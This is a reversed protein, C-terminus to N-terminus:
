RLVRSVGVRRRAAHEGAGLAAVLHTLQEYLQQRHALRISRDQAGLNRALGQESFHRPLFLTNAVHGAVILDAIRQADMVALETPRVFRARLEECRDRQSGFVRHRMVVQTQHRHEGAATVLRERMELAGDGDLGLVCLRVRVETRQEFRRAPRVLGGRMVALRQLRARFMGRRVDIQRAQEHAAAAGVLRDRM